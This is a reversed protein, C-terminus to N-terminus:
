HSSIINKANDAIKSALPINDFTHSSTNTALNISDIFNAWNVDLQIEYHSNQLQSLDLPINDTRATFGDGGIHFVFSEGSGFIGNNDIDVNGELVIFLYSWSEPSIGMQWHMSPSQYSLPNNSQYIAPDLHNNVSDVGILFAINEISSVSITDFDYNDLSPDILSYKISSHIISESQNKYTPQGMYFSARSFQINNQFDDKYISDLSFLANNFYHFIKLNIIIDNSPYECSGDNENANSNYNIANIDTCGPKNCNYFLVSVFILLCLKIHLSKLNM